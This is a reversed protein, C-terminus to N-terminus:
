WQYLAELTFQPRVVIWSQQPVTQLVEYVWARGSARVGFNKARVLADAGVAGGLDPEVAFSGGGLVPVDPDLNATWIVGGGARVFAEWAWNAPQGHPIRVGPTVYVGHRLSSTQDWPADPMADDVGLPVPSVFGGFDVAVVRTLRSDMGALVGFGSPGPIWSAGAHLRNQPDLAVQDAHASGVGLVLLLVAATM